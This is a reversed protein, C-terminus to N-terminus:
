DVNVEDGFLRKVRYVGKLAGDEYVFTNVVDSRNKIRSVDNAPMNLEKEVDINKKGEIWDLFRTKKM